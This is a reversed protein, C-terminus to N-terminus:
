ASLADDGEGEPLWRDPCLLGGGAEFRDCPHDARFARHFQGSFFGEGAQPDPYACLSSPSSCDRDRESRPSLWSGYDGRVGAISELRSPSISGGGRGQVWLFSVAWEQGVMGPCSGYSRPHLYPAKYGV